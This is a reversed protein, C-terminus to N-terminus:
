GEKRERLGGYTIKTYLFNDSTKRNKANIWQRKIKRELERKSEEREWLDGYM